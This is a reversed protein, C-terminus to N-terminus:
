RVGLGFYLPLLVMLSAALGFVCLGLTRKKDAIAKRPLVTLGLISIVFFLHALLLAAPFLCYHLVAAPLNAWSERDGGTVLWFLRSAGAMGILSVTGGIVWWHVSRQLIQTWTPENTNM